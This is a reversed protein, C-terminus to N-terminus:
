FMGYGGPLTGGDDGWLPRGVDRRHTPLELFQNYRTGQGNYDGSESRAIAYAFWLNGAAGANPRGELYAPCRDDDPHAGGIRYDVEATGVVVDVGNKIQYALTAARGDFGREALETQWDAESYIEWTDGAVRVVDGTAAIRLRDEA